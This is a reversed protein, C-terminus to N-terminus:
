DWSLLETTTSPQYRSMRIKRGGFCFGPLEDIVENLLNYAEKRAKSENDAGFVLIGRM